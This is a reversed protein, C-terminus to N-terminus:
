DDSTLYCGAALVLVWSDRSSHFGLYTAAILLWIHYTDRSPMRGLAFAAMGTLGVLCWNGLEPIQPARHEQIYDYVYTHGGYGYAPKYVGFGYPNMGTALVCAVLLGLLLLGSPAASPLVRTGRVRSTSWRASPLWNLLGLGYVFQIHLNAWARLDGSAAVGM